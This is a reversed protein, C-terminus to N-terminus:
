PTPLSKLYDLFEFFEENTLYVRSRKGYTQILYDRGQETTWGLRKLEIDTAAVIDEYEMEEYNVELPSEEELALSPIPESAQIEPQSFLDAQTIKEEEAASHHNNSAIEATTKYYNTNQEEVFSESTTTQSFKNVPSNTEQPQLEVSKKLPSPQPMQKETALPQAVNVAPVLTELARKRARDEAAEPTDAAALGTALTIQEVIVSVKVIYKGQYIDVLESVLSGQPYLSRFKSYM